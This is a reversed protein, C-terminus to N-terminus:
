GFTITSAAPHIGFADGDQLTLAAGRDAYGILPDVPASPTDDYVIVYQFPGVTGGAATVTKASLAITFIGGSESGTNETDIPGTYGNEQSIEAIDTKVTHTSANPATNSLYYKILSGSTSFDHVGTCYHSVCSEFKTFTAM